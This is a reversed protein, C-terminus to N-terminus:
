LARVAETLAILRLGGAPSTARTLHRIVGQEDILVTGSQQVVGWRRELGYARFIRREPDSIVPFRVTLRESVDRADTLSGPGVVVVTVRLRDLLESM